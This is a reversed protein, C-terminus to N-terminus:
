PKLRCVNEDCPCAGDIEYAYTLIEAMKKAKETIEPFYYSALKKELCIRDPISDMGSFITKGTEGDMTLADEGNTIVVYPIQYKTLLRSIAMAPTQRTVMSGPGYKIIMVTRGEINICFDLRVYGRDGSASKLDIRNRGKIWSKPIKKEEVLFRAIKQRYREDHNDEIEDGTLYDTTQGLVLHHSGM